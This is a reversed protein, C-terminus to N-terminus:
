YDHNIVFDELEEWIKKHIKDGASRRRKDVKKPETKKPMDKQIQALM